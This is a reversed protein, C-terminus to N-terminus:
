ASSERRRHAPSNLRHSTTEAQMRRASEVMDRKAAIMALRNEKAILVPIKEVSQDLVRELSEGCLNVGVAPHGIVQVQEHLHGVRRKASQYEADGAGVRTRYLKPEVRGSV